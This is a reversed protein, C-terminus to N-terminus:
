RQLIKGALTGTQRGQDLTVQGNIMVTDIGQPFQHPNEFTAKDAVVAHDLIVLDAKYGKRILGRDTFGLKKAPGGTMKHIASEISLLKKERVYQALVRPFSGYYRPHVNKGRISGEYAIAAGDSSVMGAPHTMIREIDEDCMSFAIMSLSGKEECFVRFVSEVPSLGLMEAIELISRGDFRLNEERSFGSLIIKDWGLGDRPNEWDYPPVTMEKVIQKRARPDNLTNIMATPGKNKAWTPFIELLGTCWAPYPYQDFTLDIGQDRAKEIMELIIKSKGWNGPLECKLHSIQFSIDAGQSIAIAENVADIIGNGESRMHLSFIGGAESVPKALSVLENVDAFAGPHYILGASIGFVGQELERQILKHMQAIQEGDPASSEYGMVACRIAGHGVLPAVNISIGNDGVERCYEGLSKWHWSERSVSLGFMGGISNIFDAYEQFYKDSVPGMSEGCNGVVETTVGQHIKSEAHPFNLLTFDSHSHMDIFGPCVMMGKADIIRAAQIDRCAGIEVIEDGRIGIDARYGKNGSGDIIEANKILVDM